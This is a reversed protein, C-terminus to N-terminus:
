SEEQAVGPGTLQEITAPSAIVVRRNAWAARRTCRCQSEYVSQWEACRRKWIRTANRQVIWGAGYCVMGYVVILATTM